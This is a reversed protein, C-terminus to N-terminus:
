FFLFPFLTSFSPDVEYTLIKGNSLNESDDILHKAKCDNIDIEKEIINVTTTPLKNPEQVTVIETIEQKKGVKKKITRTKITKEPTQIESIM